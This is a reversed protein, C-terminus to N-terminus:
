LHKDRLVHIIYNVIVFINLIISFNFVLQNSIRDQVLENITSFDTIKFASYLLLILSVGFILGSEIFLNKKLSRKLSTIIFTNVGVLFSVSLIGSNIDTIKSKEIVSSGMFENSQLFYLIYINTVFLFGLPKFISSISNNKINLKYLVLSVVFTLISIIIVYIYHIYDYYHFINTSSLDEISYGMGITGSKDIKNDEWNYIISNKLITENVRSIDNYETWFYAIKYPITYSGMDYMHLVLDPDTTQKVFLLNNQQDNLINSWELNIYQKNIHVRTIVTRNDKEVEYLFIYYTHDKDFAFSNNKNNYDIWEQYSLKHSTLLDLREKLAKNIFEDLKTKNKINFEVEVNIANEVKRKIYIIYLIQLIVIFIYFGFLKIINLFHEAM